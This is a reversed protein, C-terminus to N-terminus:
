RVSLKKFKPPFVVTSALDRLGEKGRARLIDNADKEAIGHWDLKGVQAYKSLVRELQANFRKGILDNDGGAIYRKFGLGLLIQVQEESIAGHGTAVASFGATRWSLADIEAECIIPNDRNGVSDAGWVLRGIPYAGDEYFFMKGKTARYKVNMLRGDPFRWPLAVYGKYPGRGCGAAIQVEAEIGRSELYKSPLVDIISDDLPLYTKNRPIHPAVIIRKGDRPAYKDLLYEEAEEYTEHRLFALLKVLGGKAFRDDSAGSDSWIGAPYDGSPELRVFFSPSYEDRFPSCAILKEHSWKAGRWEYEEIEARVDVAINRNRIEITAM